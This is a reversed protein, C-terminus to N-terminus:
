LTFEKYWDAVDSGFALLTSEGTFTLDKDKCKKLILLSNEGNRELLGWWDNGMRVLREKQKMNPQPSQGLLLNMANAHLGILTARSYSSGSFSKRVKCKGVERDDPIWPLSAKYIHEERNYALYFFNHKKEAVKEEQLTPALLEETIGDLMESLREYYSSDILASSGEKYLLVYLVEGIEYVVLEVFCEVDQGDSKEKRCLVIKRTSISGGDEDTKGLLFKGTQKEISPESDSDPEQGTAANTGFMSVGFTPIHSSVNTYVSRFPAILLSEVYSEGNDPGIDHDAANGVSSSNGPGRIADLSARYGRLSPLNTSKLLFRSLGFDFDQRQLYDLLNTISSQEFPSDKDMYIAGYLDASSHDRSLIIIDELGDQDTFSSKLKQSLKAALDGSAAGSSLKIGDLMGYVGGGNFDFSASFEFRSSLWERWWSSLFEFRKAFEPSKKDPCDSFFRSMSGYNLRWYKGGNEIESTLYEPSAIGRKTYRRDGYCPFNVGCLFYYREELQGVLERSKDTDIYSLMFTSKKSGANEENDKAGGHGGFKDTMDSLAQVMGLLRTRGNQDPDTSGFDVSAVINQSILQQEETRPGTGNETSFIYFHGISPKPRPEKPAAERWQRNTGSVINSLITSPLEMAASETTDRYVAIARDRCARSHPM